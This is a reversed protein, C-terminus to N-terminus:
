FDTWVVARFQLMLPMTAILPISIEAQTCLYAIYGISARLPKIIQNWAFIGLAVTTNFRFM